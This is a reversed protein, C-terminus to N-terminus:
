RAVFCELFGSTSSLSTPMALSALVEGGANWLLTRLPTNLSGQGYLLSDSLNARQVYSQLRNAAQSATVNYQFFKPAEQEWINAYSEAVEALDSGSSINGNDVPHFQEAIGKAMDSIAYLASPVLATCVDYPYVGWGIGPNSDRWDGVPSWAQDKGLQYLQEPGSRFCNFHQPRVRRQM